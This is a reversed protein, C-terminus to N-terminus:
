SDRIIPFTTINSYQLDVLQSSETGVELLCSVSYEYIRLCHFNHHDKLLQGSYLNQFSLGFSSTLILIYIFLWHPIEQVICLNHGHALSDFPSASFQQEVWSRWFGIEYLPNLCVRPFLCFVLFLVNIEIFNSLM